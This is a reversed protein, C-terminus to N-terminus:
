KKVAVRQPYIKLQDVYFNMRKSDYSLEVIKEVKSQKHNIFVEFYRDSYLFLNVKYQYYRIDIVFSGEFYLERIKDKLTLKSFSQVSM